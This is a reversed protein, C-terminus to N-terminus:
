FTCSGTACVQKKASPRKLERPVQLELRALVLDEVAAIALQRSKWSADNPLADGARPATHMDAGHQLAANPMPSQNLRRLSM